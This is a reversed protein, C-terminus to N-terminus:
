ARSPATGLWARVAPPLEAAPVGFCALRARVAADTPPKIMAVHEIDAERFEEGIRIWGLKDYFVAASLQAHMYPLLTAHEARAAEEMAAMLVRGVGRGRARALTAIREFKLLPGKVRFRGTGVAEEGDLALFFTAASEFEDLELEAPVGQEEVFVERRIAVAREYGAQDTVRRAKILTDKL